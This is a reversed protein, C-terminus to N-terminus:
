QLGLPGNHIKIIKARFDGPAGIVADLERVQAETPAAPHHLDLLRTARLLVACQHTELALGVLRFQLALQRLDAVPAPQVDGLAGWLPYSVATGVSLRHIGNRGYDNRERRRLELIRALVETPSYPM